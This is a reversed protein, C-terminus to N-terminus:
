CSATTNSNTRNTMIIQTDHNSIRKWKILFISKTTIKIRDIGNKLLQISPQKFRKDYRTILKIVLPPIPAPSTFNDNKNAICSLENGAKSFESDKVHIRPPIKANILLAGVMAKAGNM